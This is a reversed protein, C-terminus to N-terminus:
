SSSRLHPPPRGGHRKKKQRGGKIRTSDRRFRMKSRPKRCCSPGKGGLFKGKERKWSNSSRGRSMSGEGEGNPSGSTTKGFDMGPTELCGREKGRWIERKKIGLSLGKRHVNKKRIKAISAGRKREQALTPEERRSSGGEGITYFRRGGPKGGKKASPSNKGREFRDHFDGRREKSRRNIVVESYDKTDKVKGKVLRRFFHFYDKGGKRRVAGGGSDSVLIAKEKKDYSCGGWGVLQHKKEKHAPMPIFLSETGGGKKFAGISSTKRHWDLARIEPFQSGGGRGSWGRTRASCRERGKPKTSLDKELHSAAGGQRITLRLVKMNPAGEKKKEILVLPLNRGGAVRGPRNPLGEANEGCIPIIRSGRMGVRGWVVAISGWKKQGHMRM